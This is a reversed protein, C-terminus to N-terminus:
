SFKSLNYNWLFLLLLWILGIKPGNM